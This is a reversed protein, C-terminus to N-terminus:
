GFPQYDENKNKRGIMRCILPLLMQNYMIMASNPSSHNLSIRSTDHSFPTESVHNIAVIIEIISNHM